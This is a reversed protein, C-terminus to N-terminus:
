NPLKGRECLSHAAEALASEGMKGTVFRYLNDANWAKASYRAGLTIWARLTDDDQMLQVVRRRVYDSIREEYSSLRPAHASAQYGKFVQLNDYGKVFYERVARMWEDITRGHYPTRDARVRDTDGLVRQADNAVTPPEGKPLPNGNPNKM